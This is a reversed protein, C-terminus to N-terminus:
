FHSFSKASKNRTSRSPLTGPLLSVLYSNVKAPRELQMCLDPKSHWFLAGDQSNCPLIGKNGLSPLVQLCTYVWSTNGYIATQRPATQDKLCLKGNDTQYNLASILCAGFLETLIPSHM